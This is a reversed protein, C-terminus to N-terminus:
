LRQLEEIGKDGAKRIFEKFPITNRKQKECDLVYNSTFKEIKNALLTNTDDDFLFIKKYVKYAEEVEDSHAPFLSSVRMFRVRANFKPKTGEECKKILESISPPFVSIKVAEKIANGLVESDYPKFFGYWYTTSEMTLKMFKNGYASKLDNMHQEFDWLTM